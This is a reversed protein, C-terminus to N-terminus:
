PFLVLRPATAAAWRTALLPAPALLLAALLALGVTRQDNGEQQQGQDAAPHVPTDALDLVVLADPLEEGGVVALAVHALLEGELDPRAVAAGRDARPQDLRAHDLAAGREHLDALRALGLAERDLRAAVLHPQATRGLDDEVDEDVRRVG